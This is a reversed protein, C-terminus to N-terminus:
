FLELSQTKGTNNVLSKFNDYMSLAVYRSLKLETEISLLRDFTILSIIKNFDIRELIKKTYPRKADLFAIHGLFEQVESSNLLLMAIYAMDYDDFCIFYSTDDTMVPKKDNSYLVSFLPKKYFGSVGVKYASYSYEGIGFMSFKPAGRYISSKRNKFLDINDNLYAWAKPFLKEIYVTEERLKKQTVIVFKSFSNIIPKKFMSSKVLPFLINQEINVVTKFGNELRSSNMTLEMVKACDHKIGQHWEFCCEGDFRCGDDSINSYFFGKSYGYKYKMDLPKEFDYVNCSTSLTKTESLKIVLLCASASIGFVKSAKFELVDCSSFSIKNRYLELFVNRAVSTKCLMAIIANTGKYEYILNLIIYECIDFNSAGTIAEIGKFGKLNFKAPLNVSGEASLASNTAWPPNGIVLIQRKDKVLKKLSFSFFNSNIIKVKNNNSFKTACCECYAPNIEIGYYENADFILSSKLFNGIGCTPEVVASPKIHRYNKLYACVKDAFEAPTQYDGYERKGNM